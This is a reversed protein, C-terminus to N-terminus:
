CEKGVRREESRMGEEFTEGPRISFEKNKVIVDGSYIDLIYRTESREESKVGYVFFVTNHTLNPVISNPTVYIASYPEQGFYLFIGTLVIGIGIALFVATELIKDNRIEPL